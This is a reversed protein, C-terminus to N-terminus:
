TFNRFEIISSQKRVFSSSSRQVNSSSDSDGEVVSDKRKRDYPNVDAEPPPMLFNSNLGKKKGAPM